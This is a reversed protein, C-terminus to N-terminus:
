RNLGEIEHLYRVNSWPVFTCGAVWNIRVGDKNRVIDHIGGENANWITGPVSDVMVGQVTVLRKIHYMDLGKGIPIATAKLMTLPHAVPPRAWNKRAGVLSVLM